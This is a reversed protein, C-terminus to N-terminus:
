DTGEGKWKGTLMIEKVTIQTVIKIIFNRIEENIHKYLSTQHIGELEDVEQIVQVILRDLYDDMSEEPM